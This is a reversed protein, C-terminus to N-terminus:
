RQFAGTAKLRSNIRYIAEPALHLDKMAEEVIPRIEHLLRFDVRRERPSAFIWSYHDDHKHDKAIHPCTHYVRKEVVRRRNVQFRLGIPTISRTQCARDFAELAQNLADKLQDWPGEPIALTEVEDVLERAMFTAEVRAVFEGVYWSHSQDLDVQYDFRDGLVQAVGWRIAEVMVRERPKLRLLDTEWQHM